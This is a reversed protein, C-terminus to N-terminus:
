DIVFQRSVAYCWASFQNNNNNTTTKLTDILQLSNRMIDVVKRQIIFSIRQQGSAGCLTFLKLIANSQKNLFAVLQAAKLYQYQM